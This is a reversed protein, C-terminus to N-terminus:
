PIATEGGPQREPRIGTSVMWLSRLWARPIPSFASSPPLCSTNKRDQRHVGWKNRESLPVGDGASPVSPPRACSTTVLVSLLFILFAHIRSGM